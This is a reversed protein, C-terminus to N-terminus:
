CGGATIPLVLISDRLLIYLQGWATSGLNGDSPVVTPVAYTVSLPGLSRSAIPGSSAAAGASELAKKAVHAALNLHGDHAKTNWFDLSVMRATASVITELVGSDLADLAGQAYALVEASSAHQRGSSM